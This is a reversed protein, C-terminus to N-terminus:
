DFKVRVSNAAVRDTAFCIYKSAEVLRTQFEIPRDNLVVQTATQDSGVLIEVAINAATGTFDLQLENQQRDFKYVYSLYGGSAPYKVTTTVTDVGAASWRPALRAKNFAVGEDKVGALGELLAYVVAAAGWNDPAGFSIKEPMFFVPYDSLTVGLVMWLGETGASEFDLSAIVKDPFPNDLGFIYVGVSLSKENQGKWAVYYPRKGDDYPGDQPYWWSAINQGNLVHTKFMTGDSYRVLIDGLYSGRSQTHLFYISAAKKKIPLRARKVYGSKGSLILCAKRGNEIPDVITFPVDKFIQNGVPFEHLDNVGEGTWGPVGDAGQGSIDANAMAKLSIPTFNRQPPDPLAGRYICLLRNGSLKALEAMRRLIYVGYDEFGHNFAGHAVEGAVISSVGGNMYEWKDLHWGKEYPPYCMYWEGPSSAPMEKAINQYTKIIAVSKDHGIRRNIAYANSITVQKSEDTNGFDRKYTPDEPVHHTYFAGNWSLQDIREKIGKGIREIKEAEENRGVHRLMEA